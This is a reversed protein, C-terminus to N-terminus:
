ANAPPMNTDTSGRKKKPVPKELLRELPSHLRVPIARAEMVPGDIQSRPDAYTSKVLAGKQGESHGLFAGISRASHGSGSNLTAFAHRMHSPGFKPIGNQECLRICLREYQQKPVM